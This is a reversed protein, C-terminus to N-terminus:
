NLGIFPGTGQRIAIDIAETLLLETVLKVPLRHAKALGLLSYYYRLSITVGSFEIQDADLDYGELDYGELLGADLEGNDLEADQDAGQDATGVLIRAMIRAM